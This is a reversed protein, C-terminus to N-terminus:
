YQEETWMGQLPRLDVELGDAQRVLKLEFAHTDIAMTGGRADVERTISWRSQACLHVAAARCCSRSLSSIAAVVASSSTRSVFTKLSGASLAWCCRTHRGAPEM